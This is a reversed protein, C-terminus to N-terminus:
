KEPRMYRPIREIQLTLMPYRLRVEERLAEAEQRSACPTQNMYRIGSGHSEQNVVYYGNRLM